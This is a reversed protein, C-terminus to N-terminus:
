FGKIYLNKDFEKHLRSLEKSVSANFQFDDMKLVYGGIIEPDIKEVL